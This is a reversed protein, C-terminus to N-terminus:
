VGGSKEAGPELDLKKALQLSPFDDDGGADLGEPSGMEWFQTLTLVPKGAGKEELKYMKYMQKQNM